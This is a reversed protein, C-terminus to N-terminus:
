QERKRKALALLSLSGLLSGLAVQWDATAADNGTQPLRAASPAASYSARVAPSQVVPAAGSTAQGDAPTPTSPLPEAPTGQPSAPQDTSPTSPTGPDTPENIEVKHTPVYVYIVDPTNATYTGTANAPIAVLRYGNIEKAQTTYSGGYEGRLTESPALATGDATQYHVTVSEEDPAYVYIVDPTNTTYTGTANTPTTTLHYGPIKKASTTYDSGYSGTQTESSALPTGDATQYRVTVTEEDPAYVYIVDPTDTTYTGKANTPTTTLHYGPIEKASTTYDSGYSGTQTESSALPAGDATQYRVTVTEEDPAYVYIVDPTDTTYTGTANTPTTTLHYGPIEKASTTYDSGYSGTQTESSALPTGDATQYHVTVSEEDPAYTIVVLTDQNKAVLENSTTVTTGTVQDQNPSYGPVTPSTVLQYSGTTWEGNWDVTDTVLDKVGTQSLNVKQVDDPLQQGQADKMPQGTSDVYHISQTIQKRRTTSETGHKLHIVYTQDVKDDHDFYVPQGKTDDSVLVYGAAAYTALQDKTLYNILQNSLGTQKVRLLDQGTTDDHYIFTAAQDNATYVVNITLDNSNYDVATAGTADADRGDLVDATYGPLVPLAQGALTTAGQNPVAQGDIFYTKEGTVLDEDETITVTQVLAEHAVPGNVTTYYYNVTKTITKPTQRHQHVLEFQVIDGDFYYRVTQGFAATENVATTVWSQAGNVITPVATALEYNAPILARAADTLTFDTQQMTDVNDQYTKTLMPLDIFHGEGAADVYHYRATVTATGQITISTPNAQFPLMGDVTMVVELPGSKKADWTVRQDEGTLVFQGIQSNATVTPLVIVLSRIKAWDAPAIQDATVYGALSVQSGKETPIAQHQTSYYIQVDVDSVGAQGLFSVPGTLNFTFHDATAEPLNVLLRPNSLASNAYNFASLYYKMTPSGKDDSRGANVDTQDLNGQSTGPTYFAAPVAITWNGEGISYVTEDTIGLAQRQAATLSAPNNKLPTNPSVMYVQWNRIGPLANNLNTLHLEGNAFYQGTGAYDVKVVEQGNVRTTTVKATNWDATPKLTTGEPLVFYLTPEFVQDTTSGNKNLSVTLIGADETGPTQGTNPFQYGNVGYLARLDAESILTQIDQATYYKGQNFGPSQATISSVLQDGRKLPTGNDYTAALSGYAILAVVANNQKTPGYDGDPNVSAVTGATPVLQNPILQLDRIGKGSTDQIVAGAAVSGEEKSQDPHTIVYRYSTTGPLNVPDVPTKIGTVHLGDALHLYLNLPMQGDFAIPTKNTFTFWNVIAPNNSDDHDLLFQNVSNNGYSKVLPQGQDLPSQQGALTVQWPAMTATLTTTGTPTLVTEVVQAQGGNSALPNTSASILEDTAPRDGVVKGVLKFSSGANGKGAPVTIIVDHSMGGPQTITFNNKAQTWEENLVFGTPVPITITTGANVDQDIGPWTWGNFGNPNQNIQFGYVYDTNPLWRTIGRWPEPDAVGVESPNISPHVMQWIVLPDNEIPDQGARTLSWRIVRQYDGMVNLGGNQGRELVIHPSISAEAEFKYTIVTATGLNKVTRTGLGLGKLDGDGGNTVKYITSNPVTITYIDNKRTVTKFTITIGANTGDAGITNKDVSLVSGQQDTVETPTTTANVEPTAPTFDQYASTPAAATPQSTRLVVANSVPAAQTPASTTQAPSTTATSGVVSTTVDGADNSTAMVQAPAAAKNVGALAATPTAASSSADSAAATTVTTASGAAPAASSAPASVTTETTDAAADTVVVGGALAVGVLVSVVGIGLKRVAFRQRQDAHRFQAMKQNNKGFM